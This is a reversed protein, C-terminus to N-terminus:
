KGVDEDQKLDITWRGRYTPRELAARLLILYRARSITIAGMSALHSTHMQCDVLSIGQTAGWRVLTALAIKSSDPMWSFMSEGCFAAGLSVGYLGGTLEDGAWVEISHAYGEKHLDIYARQMDRTIWTDAQGERPTNACAAIVEAFAKDATVTFKRQKLTRELRRSVHLSEPTIIAREEPSHWLIPEGVSFWPFIGSAYALLLRPVSLDGGVALLGEEAHEVPPFVLTDGLRYVPM